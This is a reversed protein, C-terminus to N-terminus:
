HKSVMTAGHGYEKLEDIFSTWRYKSELYEVSGAALASAVAGGAGALSILGSGSSSGVLSISGSLMTSIISWREVKPFALNLRRKCERAENSLESLISKGEEHGAEKAAQIAKNVARKTQIMEDRNRLDLLAGIRDSTQELCDERCKAQSACNGCSHDGVLMLSAPYHKAYEGLISCTPVILEFVDIFDASRNKAIEGFRKNCVDLEDPSLFFGADLERSLALTAYISGLIGACVKKGGIYINAYDVKGTVPDRTIEKGWRAEDEKIQNLVAEAMSSSSYKGADFQNIIGQKKLEDFMTAYSERVVEDNPLHEQFAEIAGKPILLEDTWLLTQPRVLLWEVSNSALTCGTQSGLDRM